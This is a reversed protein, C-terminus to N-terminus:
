CAPVVAVSCAQQSFLVRCLITVGGATLYDMPRIADNDLWQIVVDNWLYRVLYVRVLWQVCMLLVLGLRM